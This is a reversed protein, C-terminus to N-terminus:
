GIVDQEELKEEIFSQLRAGKMGILGILFSIVVYVLLGLLAWLFDHEYLGGIAERLATLGYAFPMYKYLVQFFGPLVEVPFTGGSGAVQIVM